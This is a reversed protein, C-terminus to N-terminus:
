FTSEGSLKIVQAHVWLPPNSSPPTDHRTTLSDRAMSNMCTPFCCPGAKQLVVELHACVHGAARCGGSEGGRVLSTDEQVWWGFSLWVFLFASDTKQPNPLLPLSWKPRLHASSLHQPFDLCWLIEQWRGSTSFFSRSTVCYCTKNKTEKSIFCQYCLPTTQKFYSTKVKGDMQGDPRQGSVVAHSFAAQLSPWHAPLLTTLPLCVSTVDVLPHSVVRARGVSHVSSGSDRWRERICQGLHLAVCSDRSTHVFWELARQFLGGWTFWPSVEAQRGSVERRVGAGTLSEGVTFLCLDQQHYSGTQVTPVMDLTKLILTGRWLACGVVPIHQM